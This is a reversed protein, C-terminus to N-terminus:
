KAVRSQKLEAIMKNLNDDDFWHKITSDEKNFLKTFFFRINENTLKKDTRALLYGYQRPTLKKKSKVLTCTTLNGTVEPEVGEAKHQLGEDFGFFISQINLIYDFRKHRKDKKIDYSKATKVVEPMERGYFDNAIYDVMWYSLKQPIPLGNKRAYRAVRVLDKIANSAMSSILALDIMDEKTHPKIFQKRQLENYEVEEMLESIRNEIRKAIVRTNPQRIFDPWPDINSETDKKLNM